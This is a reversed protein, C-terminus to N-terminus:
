AIIKKFFKDAFKPITRSQEGILTRLTQTFNAFAKITFM